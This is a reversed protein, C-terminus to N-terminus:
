IKKKRFMYCGFCIVTLCVLVLVTLFLSMNFRNRDVIDRNNTSESPSLIGTKKYNKEVKNEEKIAAISSESNSIIDDTVENLQDLFDNDIDIVPKGNQWRYRIGPAEDLYVKAGDPISPVFAGIAAFDPNFDINTRKYNRITKIERGDKYKTISQFNAETPIWVDNYKEFKVGDLEFSFELKQGPIKMGKERLRKIAETESYQNLPKGNLIDKGTKKVKAKAINYSHEPDIWLSYKGNPTEADIVYCEVGNVSEMQSRITTQSARELIIDISEKDGELFGDLVAGGHAQPLSLDYKKKNTSFSAWIMNSDSPFNEQFWRNGDFVFRTKYTNRLSGLDKIDEVNTTKNIILDAFGDKRRFEFMRKSWSPESLASDLNHITEQSKVVSNNLPTNKKFSKEFLEDVSMSTAFATGHSVILFAILCAYRTM